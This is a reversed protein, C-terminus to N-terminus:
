LQYRNKLSRNSPSFSIWILLQSCDNEFRDTLAAWAVPYNTTSLPISKIVSLASGTLSQSLFHFRHVDDIGYDDHVFAKFTDRFACWKTISGDFSPLEIKPLAISPQWVPQIAVTAESTRDIIKYIEDVVAEVTDTVPSDVSEYEDSRGVIVLSNIVITQEAQFRSFLNDLRKVSTSLQERKGPNNMSLKQVSLIDSISKQAHNRAIRACELAQEAMENKKTNPPM